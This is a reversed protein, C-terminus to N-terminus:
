DVKIEKKDYWSINSGEVEVTIPVIIWKWHELLRETMIEKALRIYSELEEEPVEAIISDHIQCTIMSQFKQRRLEKQLQILSWLLCHFASGQVPYNIVDNRQCYSDIKFGTLTNFYGRECYRNYWTQKWKKYIPFRENWFHQEVKQLHYEFTGQVPKEDPNCAGLKDIGQKRLWKRMKTAAEFGEPDDKKNIPSARLDFKSMAEWLDKACSLYYSGYFQPFVFMNKACYRADKSIDAPKLKYCAAAMDRHMDKTDDCIYEIMTPDKHYCAAVKVEIGSYDIEVIYWGKRRPTFASRIIRASEGSRIPFNQLNPDSTSSRYTRAINLSFSGRLLNDITENKIGMLFTNRLKIINQLKTYTKALPHDIKALDESKTSWQGSETKRGDIGLHNFLVWGIQQGATIKTKSGFRRQWPVFLPDDKIESTLQKARDDCEAISAHLREPDVHMGNAEVEALALSGYHLLEYAERTAPKM